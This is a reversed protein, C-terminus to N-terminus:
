KRRGTVREIMARSVKERKGAPIGTAKDHEELETLAATLILDTSTDKIGGQFRKRIAAKVRKAKYSDRSSNPLM